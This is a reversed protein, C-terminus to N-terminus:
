WEDTQSATPRSGKLAKAVASEIGTGSLDKALITGDPGVLVILPITRAGYDAVVTNRSEGQLLVQPWDIQNEQLYSRVTQADDDLSLGIMAFRDDKGFAKQIAKLHSTEARCPGCWTAWFDLLVFKGRLDALKLPKGDLTTLQLAPAGDGVHLTKNLKLELTGVDLPEDSRGSAMAPVKVTREVTGLTEIIGGRSSDAWNAAITLTYAGSPVDDIRFTGDPNIALGYTREARQFAKGANTKM